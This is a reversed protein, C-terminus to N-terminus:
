WEYGVGSEFYRGPYPKYYDNWYKSDSLNYVNFFLSWANGLMKKSTFDFM